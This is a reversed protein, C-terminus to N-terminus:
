RRARASRRRQVQRSHWGAQHCAKEGVIGRDQNQRGHRNPCGATASRHHDTTNSRNAYRLILLMKANTRSSGVLSRALSM